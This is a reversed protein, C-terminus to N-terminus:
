KEKRKERNIEMKFLSGSKMIEEKKLNRKWNVESLKDSLCVRCFRRWVERKEELREIVMLLNMESIKLDGNKILIM